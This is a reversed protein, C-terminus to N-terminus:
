FWSYKRNNLFDQRAGQEDYYKLLLYIFWAFINKGNRTDGTAVEALYRYYDGKM